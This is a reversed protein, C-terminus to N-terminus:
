DSLSNGCEPCFGAAPPCDNGCARCQIGDWVDTGSDSASASPGPDAQQGPQSGGGSSSNTQLTTADQNDQLVTEADSSSQPTSAGGVGGRLMGSLEALGSRRYLSKLGALGSPSGTVTQTDAVVDGPHESEQNKMVVYVMGIYSTALTSVVFVAERLLLQGISQQGVTSVVELGFLAKGITQGGTLANMAPFYVLGAGAVVGLSLSSTDVATTSGVASVVAVGLGVVLAYDAARALLRYVNVRRVLPGDGRVKRPEGKVFLAKLVYAYVRVILYIAVLYIFLIVLLIILGARAATNNNESGSIFRYLLSAVSGAMIWKRLGM